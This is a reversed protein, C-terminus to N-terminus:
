RLIRAEEDNSALWETDVVENFFSIFNKTSAELFFNM